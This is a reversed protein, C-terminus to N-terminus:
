SYTYATGTGGCRGQDGTPVNPLGMWRPFQKRPPSTTDRPMPDHLPDNIFEALQQTLPQM